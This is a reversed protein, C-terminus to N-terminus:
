YGLEEGVIIVKIRDVHRQQASIVYNCCIRRDSHCGSPIERNDSNLSLCKGTKQCYTDCNLRVCNPPAAKTKVRIEAEEINKVIKNYGCVLIVSKPGYLIASVRNSNGDVNYLEGNETIANSSAFYADASYTKRYVEEIEEQTIGERSRNLYNYKGSKLEDIVGTEKLTESGGNSVTDGEKILTKILPLVEEKTEVFYPKMKNVKLNEMTRQIKSKLENNM